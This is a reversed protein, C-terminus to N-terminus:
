LISIIKFKSWKFFNVKQMWAMKYVKKLDSKFFLSVNEHDVLEIKLNGVYM